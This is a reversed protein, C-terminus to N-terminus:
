ASPQLQFAEVAARVEDLHTFLAVHGGGGLAVLRARPLRQAASEAQAFPVVPDDVAHLILVPVTIEELPIPPLQRFLKTDNLSGPIRQDLRDLVSSQLLRLLAAREPDALTRRRLDDDPIARRDAADPDKAAHRRMLAVAGPIRSLLGFVRMRRVQREPVDLASTPASVLILGDCRDPHRLAFHLASPGGASVAAITTREIGLADLLRAYLDAQAEPTRGLTLPTGPYGPRSVAIVRRTEIQTLLARGLLWSQDAGGMAGHVALLAPGHGEDTHALGATIRVLPMQLPM